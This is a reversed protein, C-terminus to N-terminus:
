RHKDSWTNKIEGINSLLELQQQVNNSAPVVPAPQVPAPANLEGTDAFSDVYGAAPNITQGDIEFSKKGVSTAADKDYPIKILTGDKKTIVIESGGVPAYGSYEINFDVNEIQDGYKEEILAGLKQEAAAALEQDTQTVPAPQTGPQPGPALNQEMAAVKNSYGGQQYLNKALNYNGLSEYILAADYLANNGSDTDGAQLYSESALLYLNLKDNELDALEAANKFAEAAANHYETKGSKEAAEQYKVGAEVYNDVAVKKDGQAAAQIAAFELNGADIYEASASVPAPEPAQQQLNPNYSPSNQLNEVASKKANDFAVKKLGGFGDIVDNCNQQGQCTVQDSGASPNFPNKNVNADVEVVNTNFNNDVEIKLSEINGGNAVDTDLSQSKAEYVAKGGQVGVCTFTLGPTTASKTSKITQPWGPCSGTAFGVLADQRDFWGAANGRLAEDGVFFKKAQCLFGCDDAATVSTVMLLLVVMVVLRKM